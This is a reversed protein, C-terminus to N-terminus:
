QQISELYYAISLIRARAVAEPGGFVGSEGMADQKFLTGWVPMPGGHARVGTRGDIIHIVELMPFKGNNQAALHTLDPVQITLLEALPGQGMGTEGHCGACGQIYDMRGMEDALGGGAALALLPAAALAKWFGM